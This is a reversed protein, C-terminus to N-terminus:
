DKEIAADCGGKAECSSCRVTHGKYQVGGGKGGCSHWARDRFIAGLAIALFSLGILITTILLLILFSM